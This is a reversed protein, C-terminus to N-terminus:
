CKNIIFFYYLPSHSTSTDLQLVSLSKIICRGLWGLMHGRVFNMAICCLIEQSINRVLPTYDIINNYSYLKLHTSSM